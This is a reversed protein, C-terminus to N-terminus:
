ANEKMIKLSPYKLDKEMNVLNVDFEIIKPRVIFRVGSRGYYITNEKTQCM